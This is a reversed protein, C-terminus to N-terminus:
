QDNIGNNDETNIPAVTALIEEELKRINANANWNGKYQQQTVQQNTIWGHMVAIQNAKAQKLVDINTDTSGIWYASRWADLIDQDGNKLLAEAYGKIKINGKLVSNDLWLDFIRKCFQNSFHHSYNKTTNFWSLTAQRSASYNSNFMKLLVEPEIGLGQGIDEKIRILFDMLNINPRETKFSNYTEGANLNAKIMGAKGIEVKYGEDKVNNALDSTPYKNPKTFVSARDLQNEAKTHVLALLSNVYGARQESAICRGAEHIMQIVPSLIPMGRKDSLTKSAHSKVLFARLKGRKTKALVEITELGNEIFYSVPEGTLPDYKVGNKIYKNSDQFIVDKNIHIGDIIQIVPEGRKNLEVVVLCDGSMMATHYINKCADYFNAQKDKTIKRNAYLEWRETVESRVEELYEEEMKLIKNNPIYNLTMGSNIVANNFLNFINNAISNNRFLQLSKYQLTRLDVGNYAPDFGWGNMFTDGDFGNTNEYFNVITEVIPPSKRKFFNAFM